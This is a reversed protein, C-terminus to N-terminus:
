LMNLSILLDSVSKMNALPKKSKIIVVTGKGVCNTAVYRVVGTAPTAQPQLRNEFLGITSKTPLASATDSCLQGITQGKMVTM